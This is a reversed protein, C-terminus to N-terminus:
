KRCVASRGLSKVFRFSQRTKSRGNLSWEFPRLLSWYGPHQFCFEVCCLGRSWANCYSPGGPHTLFLEVQKTAGRGGGAAGEEERRGEGGRGAGERGGLAMKAGNLQRLLLTRKELFFFPRNQLKPTTQLLGFITALGGTHVKMCQLSSNM